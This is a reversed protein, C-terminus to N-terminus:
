HLTHVSGDVEIKERVGPDPEDPAMEPGYRAAVAELREATRVLREISEEAAGMEEFRRRRLQRSRVYALAFLATALGWLAGSGTAVVVWSTGDSLRDRWSADLEDPTRGFATEFAEDLSDGHRLRNLVVRVGHWGGERLIFGVFDAAQAYALAVATGGTPYDHLAALSRVNGGLAALTLASRRAMSSRESQQVAIGESLWRPMEAGQVADRLAIHSLEHELEIDLHEVPSGDRDRLAIVVLRAAPFAIAVSWPPPDAGKPSVKGMEAPDGVVRVTVPKPPADTARSVGLEAFIEEAREGCSERLADAVGARDADIEFRCLGSTITAAGAGKPLVGVLLAAVLALVAGTHPRAM